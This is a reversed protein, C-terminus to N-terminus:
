HFVCQNSGATSAMTEKGWALVRVGESYHAIDPKVDLLGAFRPYNVELQRIEIDKVKWELHHIEFKNIWDDSDQFLAYRETLWVDLATKNDKFPLRQFDIKFQDGFLGNSSHYSTNHRSMPSYRYPLQSLTKAIWVSLKKGAEVSLFYVGTKGAAKVYTRINIEDFNSVPAFAPLYRPRINEMTFAVLSVWANGDMLDLELGGPIFKLLREKDVKWHLFIVNNWEQYFKWPSHPLPWPRHGVAALLETNSM